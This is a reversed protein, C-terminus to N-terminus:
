ENILQAALPPVQPALRKAHSPYLPVRAVTYDKAISALYEFNEYLAPENILARVLAVFGQVDDWMSVVTFSYVDLFLDKDVLRSKILVGLNEHTNSVLRAAFRAEIYRAKEIPERDTLIAIMYACFGADEWIAPFERRVISSANRYADSDFESRVALFAAIQNNTRMHRLQIIAAIATAAIVVATVLSAIASVLELSV